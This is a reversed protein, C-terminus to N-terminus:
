GGEIKFVEDFSERVGEVKTPMKLLVREGEEGTYYGLPRFTISEITFEVKGYGRSGSGGLYSDELLKMATLLNRLDDEWQTLDEVNYIIEFHFEAGAVVRENTRPNAASTVRDIAVETKAETIQEGDRWRNEWEKTLEADRVILGSPFNSNGSAGFLRCVPCNIATNHDNCVHIVVKGVAKNFFRRCKKDKIEKVTCYGPEYPLNIEGKELRTNTLIELLGRMKGKLSSGPIYPLGTVPNKIVPNDIGGIESVEKQAGIHLGTVAKIKGTLIVKGYIRRNM